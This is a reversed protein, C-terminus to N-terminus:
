MIGKSQLWAFAYKDGSKVFHALYDRGSKIWPEGDWLFYRYVVTFRVTGNEESVKAIWLFRSQEEYPDYEAKLSEVTKCTIGSIKAFSQDCNVVTFREDELRVNMQRALTKSKFFAGALSEDLESERHETIVSWQNFTSTQRSCAEKSILSTISVVIFAIKYTM